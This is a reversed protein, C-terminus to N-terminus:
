RSKGAYQGWYQGLWAWAVGFPLSTVFVGVAGRGVDTAFGVGLRAALWLLAVGAIGAAFAAVGLKVAQDARRGMLYAVAIMAPNLAAWALVAWLSVDAQLDPHALPQAVAKAAAQLLLM